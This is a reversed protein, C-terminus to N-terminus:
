FQLEEREYRNAGDYAVPEGDDVVFAPNAM